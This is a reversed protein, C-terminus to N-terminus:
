EDRPSSASPAATDVATRLVGSIREAFASTIHQGDERVLVNGVTAPCVGADDCYWGTTDVFRANPREDTVRREAAAALAYSESLRTACADPGTWRLAACRARDPGQPVAALFVVAAGSPQVADALDAAARYWDAAARQGDPRGVQQALGDYAHTVIVVDPASRNVERIAAARQADCRARAAPTKGEVAIGIMPCGNATLGRVLADTGFALEVAPMLSAGVSSGVVTVSREARPDGFRCSGPDSVDTWACSEFGGPPGSLDSDLGPVLDAPWSRARVGDDVAASLAAANWPPGVTHEHGGGDNGDTSPASTVPAVIALVTAVSVTALVATPLRRRTSRGLRLAPVEVFRRSLLGLLVGVVISIGAGAVRQGPLLVGVGIVVPYHWLYISYSADGIAQVPRSRLLPLPALGRGAALVLATGAVALLADPIPVGGSPPGVVTAAAIAVFGAVVFGARVRHRDRLRESRARGPPSAVPVSAAGLLAGVGFEWSRVGTDFYAASPDVVGAIAAWIASATLLAVAVQVAVTRYRRPSRARTVRWAALALAPFVLYFQLEVSLSWFHQFPSAASSVAWYDTDRALFVWNVVGLAAAAGDGLVPASTGSRLMVLSAFSVMVITATAAPALRWFRRAAFALVAFRDSASKERVMSRAILYGSVVFFADVGIWGSPPRGTAHVSVVSLVALARLANIDARFRSTSSM